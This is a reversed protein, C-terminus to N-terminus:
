TMLDLFQAPLGCYRSRNGGPQAPFLLFNHRSEKGCHQCYAHNQSEHDQDVLEAMVGCGLQQANPDLNERDSKALPQDSEAAAVCAPSCDPSRMMRMSSM